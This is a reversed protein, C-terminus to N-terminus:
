KYVHVEEVYPNPHSTHYELGLEEIYDARESETNFWLYVDQNVDTTLTLQYANFNENYFTKGQIVNDSTSDIFIKEDKLFKLVYSKLRELNDSILTHGSSGWEFSFKTGDNKIVTLTHNGGRTVTIYEMTKDFMPNMAIELLSLEKVELVVQENTVTHLKLISM